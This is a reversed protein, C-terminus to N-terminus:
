PRNAQRGTQPGRAAPGARGKPDPAKRAKHRLSVGIVGGLALGGLTLETVMRGKRAYAYLCPMAGEAWGVLTRTVGRFTPTRPVAAPSGVKVGM